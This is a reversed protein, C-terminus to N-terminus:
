WFVEPAVYYSTGHFNWLRKNNDFFKSTGFDVIKLVDGDFLINEPKLDWHVIRM